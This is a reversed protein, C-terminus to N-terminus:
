REDMDKRRPPAPTDELKELRRYMQSHEKDAAEVRVALSTSVERIALKLEVAEQALVSMGQTQSSMQDRLGQLQAYLMGAFAAAGLWKLIATGAGNGLAKLIPNV